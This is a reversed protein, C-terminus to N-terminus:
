TDLDKFLEYLDFKITPGKKIKSMMCISSYWDMEHMLPKSKELIINLENFIIMKNPEYDFSGIDYELCVIFRLLEDFSELNNLLKRVKSKVKRLFKKIYKYRVYDMYDLKKGIMDNDITLKILNVRDIIIKKWLKKEDKFPFLSKLTEYQSSISIEIAWPTSLLAMVCIDHSSNTRRRLDEIRRIQDERLCKFCDPLLNYWYPFIDKREM